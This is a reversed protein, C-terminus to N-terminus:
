IVLIRCSYEKGYAAHLFGMKATAANDKYSAVFGNAQADGLSEGFGNIAYAIV